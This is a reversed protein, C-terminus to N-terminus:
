IVQAQKKNVTLEHMSNEDSVLNKNKKNKMVAECNVIKVM